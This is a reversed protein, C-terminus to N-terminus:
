KCRRRRTITFTSCPKCNVKIISQPDQPTLGKFTLSDLEESGRPAQWFPRPTHNMMHLM